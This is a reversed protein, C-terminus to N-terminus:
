GMTDGKTVPVPTVHCRSPDGPVGLPPVRDDGTDRDQGVIRPDCLDPELPVAGGAPLPGPDCPTEPQAAAAAIAADDPPDEERFAVPDPSEDDAGPPVMMGDRAVLGMRDALWRITRMDGRSVAMEIQTSVMKHLSRIQARAEREFHRREWAIRHRFAPSIDYARWLTRRHCGMALSVQTYPCGAAIMYAARAWQENSFHSGPVLEGSVPEPPEDLPHLDGYDPTEGWGKVAPEPGAYPDRRNAKRAARHAIDDPDHM